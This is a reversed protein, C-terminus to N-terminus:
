RRRSFLLCSYSRASLESTERSQARLESPKIIVFRAIRRTPERATPLPLVTRAIM